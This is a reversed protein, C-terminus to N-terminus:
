LEDPRVDDVLVSPEFLVVEVWADGATASGLFESFGVLGLKCVRM